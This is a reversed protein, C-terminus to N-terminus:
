QLAIAHQYVDETYSMVCVELNADYLENEYTVVVHRNDKLNKIANYSKLAKELYDIMPNLDFEYEEDNHKKKVKMLYEEIRDSMDFAIENIIEEKFMWGINDLVIDAFVEEHGKHWLSYDCGFMDENLEFPECIYECYGRNWLQHGERKTLYVSELIPHTERLYEFQEFNEFGIIAGKIHSPYGNTGITTEVYELGNEQAITLLLDNRREQTEM